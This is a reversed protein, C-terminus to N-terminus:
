LTSLCKNYLFFAQTMEIKKFNTYGLNIDLKVETVRNQSFYMCVDCFPNHCHFWIDVEDLNIWLQTMVLMEEITGPTTPAPEHKGKDGPM